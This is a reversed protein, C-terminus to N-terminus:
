ERLIGVVLTRGARIRQIAAGTPIGGALVVHGVQQAICVDILEVLQPHMTILNVGFSRETLAKTAAIERDLLEPSM